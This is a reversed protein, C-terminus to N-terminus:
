AHGVALSFKPGDAAQARGILVQCVARAGSLGLAKAAAAADSARTDPACILAADCKNLLTATEPGAEGAHAIVVDYSNGLAALINGTREDLLARAKASHDMGFRLLHVASKVDRGIVKTFAADGNVLDAIGPGPAIGCLEELWSGTRSLDVIVVRRGSQAMARALAVAALSTDGEGGGISTIAFCTAHVDRQTAMAWSSMSKAAAAMEVGDLLSQPDARPVPKPLAAVQPLAAPAVSTAEPVLAALSLPPIAIPELHKHGEMREALRAAAAMIELLFALGLGFSLGAITALLVM